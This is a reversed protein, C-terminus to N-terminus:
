ASNGSSVIARPQRAATDEKKPVPFDDGFIRQLREAAVEPALVGEAYMLAEKLTSLRSKFAAMQKTTMREFLDNWPEVPLAVVLREVFQQEAEDYVLNFRALVAEVLARMAHLDNHKNAIRDSYVPRLSDYTLITLGIGSPASGGGGTFNVAKWRKLCRVIRRFQVRDTGVFREFITNTLQQPNSVEWFRNESASYLKGKALRPKGDTNQSSDSYIPVDVHYVPERELSYFVTVCSRRLQVDDTHDVLAEYVREKLVVPDPYASANVRFYLGQDIDYDGDLPKVGTDMAYSGQDLFDFEPCTEGHADFAIPLNEKLKKRIIDRKERLTENEDFRGLRICDNFQEFQAQIYAM